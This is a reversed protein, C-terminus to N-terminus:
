MKCDVVVVVSLRRTEGAMIILYFKTKSNEKFDWIEKANHAHMRVPFETTRPLSLADMNGSVYTVPFPYSLFSPFFSPSLSSFDRGCNLQSHM